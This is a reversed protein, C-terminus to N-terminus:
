SARPGATNFCIPSHSLISKSHRADFPLAADLTSSTGVHNFGKRNNKTHRASAQQKLMATDDYFHFSRVGNQFLLFEITKYSCNFFICIVSAILITHTPLSIGAVRPGAGFVAVLILTYFFGDCSEDSKCVLFRGLFFVRKKAGNILLGQMPLVTSRM